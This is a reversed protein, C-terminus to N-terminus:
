FTLQIRRCPRLSSLCKRPTPCVSPRSMLSEAEVTKSKSIRLRDLLKHRSQRKLCRPHNTYTMFITFQTSVEVDSGAIICVNWYGCVCRGQIILMKRRRDSKSGTLMVRDSGRCPAKQHDGVKTPPSAIRHAIGLFLNWMYM